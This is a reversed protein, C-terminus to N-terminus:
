GQVRRLALWAAFCMAVAANVGKAENYLAAFAGDGQAGSVMAVFPINSTKADHEVSLNGGIGRRVRSDHHEGGILAVLLPMALFTAQPLSPTAVAAGAMVAAFSWLGAHRSVRELGHVGDASQFKREDNGTFDMPCQLKGTPKQSTQPGMIQGSEEVEGYLSRMRPLAQAFGALGITQLGFCLALRLPPPSAALPWQLPLTNRVKRVFGYAISACAATSISGYLLHYRVEGEDKDECDQGLKDILFGRNESLVANELIFFSWGGVAWRVASAQM